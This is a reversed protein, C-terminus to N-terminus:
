LLNGEVQLVMFLCGDDSDVAGALGGEKFDDDPFQGGVLPAHRQPPSGGDAVQGLVLVQVALAGDVVGQQLDLPGDRDRICM